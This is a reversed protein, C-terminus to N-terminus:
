RGTTELVRLHLLRVLNGFSHLELEEYVVNLICVVFGDLVHAAVSPLM